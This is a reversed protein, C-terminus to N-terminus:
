TETAKIALGKISRSRDKARRYGHQELSNGFQIKGLAHSRESECFTTYARYLVGVPTTADPVDQTREALFDALLDMDSRYSAVAARVVSPPQLGDKDIWEACGKVAWALIGPLEAELKRKLGRDEVPFDGEEGSRKWRRDFPIMGFRSWIGHDGGRITPRHNAALWLKFRPTFEFHNQFKFAAVVRDGGTLQKLTSEAFGRGQDPESATVLRAGPLQALKFERGADQRSDLFADFSAARTILLLTGPVRKSIVRPIRLRRLVDHVM